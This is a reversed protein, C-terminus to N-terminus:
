QGIFSLILDKSKKLIAYVRFIDEASADFSRSKAYTKGDLVVFFWYRGMVYAGLIPINDGNVYQATVMAILLQGLPDGSNEAEQKYEHICFFPKEPVRRGKAIMFDVRGGIEEGEHQMSLPRQTFPQILTDETLGSTEILPGIFFMKLDDENWINAKRGMLRMQKNLDYQTHSDLDAMASLWDTLLPISDKETLGFMKEVTDFTFSNFTRM